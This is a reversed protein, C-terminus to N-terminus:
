PPSHGVAPLARLLVELSKASSKRGLYCILPAGPPVALATRVADRAPSSPALAAPDIANSARVIRDGRVGRARLTEAETGTVAIVRDSHRLLWQVARQEHRPDGAHFHPTLVFPRRAARAAIWGVLAHLGPAWHAHVAAAKRAERLSRGCLEASQGWAFAELGLRSLLRAVAYGTPSFACRRVSVGDQMDDPGVAVPGPLRPAGSWHDGWLEDDARGGRLLVMLRRRTATPNHVRVRYGSPVGAPASAEGELLALGPEPRRPALAWALTSVVGVLLREGVRGLMRVRWWRAALWSSARPASRTM